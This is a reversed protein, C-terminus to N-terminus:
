QWQQEEDDAPGLDVYGGAGAPDTPEDGVHEHGATTTSLEAPSSAPLERRQSHDPNRHSRQQGPWPANVRHRSSNSPKDPNAVSQRQEHSM